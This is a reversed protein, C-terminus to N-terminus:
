VSESTLAPRNLRATIAYLLATVGFALFTVTLIASGVLRPHGFVNQRLLAVMVSGLAAGLLTNVLKTISVAFGCMHVPAVSQLYTLTATGVIATGGFAIGMPRMMLAIEPPLLAAAVILSTLGCLVSVVRWPELSSPLPWPASTLTTGTSVSM